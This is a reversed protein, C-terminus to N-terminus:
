NLDVLSYNEALLSDSLAPFVLIWQEMFWVFFYLMGEGKVVNFIFFWSILLNSEILNRPTKNSSFKDYFSRMFYRSFLIALFTHSIYLAFGNKSLSVKNSTHGTMDLNHWSLKPYYKEFLKFFFVIYDVLFASNSYDM